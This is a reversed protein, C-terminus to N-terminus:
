HKVYYLNKSETDRLNCLVGVSSLCTSFILEKDECLEISEEDGNCIKSDILVPVSSHDLGNVYTFAHGSEYGKKRCVIDAHADTWSDSCVTGELGDRSVTVKGTVQQFM